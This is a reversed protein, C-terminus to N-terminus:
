AEHGTFIKFKSPKDDPSFDGVDGRSVQARAAGQNNSSGTHAIDGECFGSHGGRGRRLRHKEGFFDQSEGQREAAGGRLGSDGAPLRDVRVEGDTYGRAHIYGEVKYLPNSRPSKYCALILFM